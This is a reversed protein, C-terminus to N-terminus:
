LDMQFIYEDSPCGKFHDANKILDVQSMGLKQVLRISAINRTDIWAKICRVGYSSKLHEVLAQTMETGLGVGQFQSAIVYAISAEKTDRHVGAQLTGIFEGSSLLFVVYNLWYESGDPSVRGEWFSYQDELKSLLPPDNPLFTFLEHDQFASHVIPAHEKKVLTMNLRASKIDNHKM